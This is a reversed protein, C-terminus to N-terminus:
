NRVGVEIAARVPYGMPQLHLPQASPVDQCQEVGLRCFAKCQHQGGQLDACSVDIEIILVRRLAQAPNQRRALRAHHYAVVRQGFSM